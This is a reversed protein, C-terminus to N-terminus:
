VLEGHVHILSENGEALRDTNIQYNGWGSSSQLHSSFTNIYKKAWVPCWRSFPCGGTLARGGMLTSVPLHSLSSVTQARPGPTQAVSLWPATVSDPPRPSLAPGGFGGEGGAGWGAQLQTHSTTCQIHVMSYGTVPGERSKSQM